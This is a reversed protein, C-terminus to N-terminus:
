KKNNDLFKKIEEYGKDSPKLENVEDKAYVWAGSEIDSRGMM